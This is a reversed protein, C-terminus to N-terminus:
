PTPREQGADGYHELLAKTSGPTLRPTAASCHSSDNAVPALHRYFASHLQSVPDPLPHDFLPHGGM